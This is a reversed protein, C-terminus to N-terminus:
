RFVWAAATAIVAFALVLCENVIVYGSRESKPTSRDFGRTLIMPTIFVVLAALVIVFLPLIEIQRKRCVAVLPFLGCVTLGVGLYLVHFDIHSLLRKM